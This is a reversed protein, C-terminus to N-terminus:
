KKKKNIIIYLIYKSHETFSLFLFPKSEDYEILLEFDGQFCKFLAILDPLYIGLNYANETKFEEFFIRSFFLKILAIHESDTENIKIGFGDIQLNINLILEKISSIIKKFIHGKSIRAYFM